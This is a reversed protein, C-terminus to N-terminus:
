ARCHSCTTQVRWCCFAFSNMLKSDRVISIAPKGFATAVVPLLLGDVDALNKPRYTPTLYDAIIAIGIATAVNLPLAGFTPVFFWAWLISLTYGSWIYMFPILAIVGFLTLFTM